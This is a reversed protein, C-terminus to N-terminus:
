RRVNQAGLGAGIRSNVGGTTAMKIVDVGRGIQKRVAQRCADPGDCLTEHRDLLEHLEERFGLKSDMHGSTTSIGSGADIIRPGVTWGKAIADRLALTVGDSSGLNRVTTFGADLSKRANWAAEYSRDAVSDTVSALQGEVGARDSTLHVHCDILGPLVFRDKLDIVTAGAPKTFGDQISVIKGKQILVSANRRPDKGPRDLLTGCHVVVDPQPPASPTPTQAAFPQALIAATLFLLALLRM